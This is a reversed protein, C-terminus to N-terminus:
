RGLELSNTARRKDAGVFVLDPELKPEDEISLNLLLRAGTFTFDLGEPGGTTALEFELRNVDEGITLKVGERAFQNINLIAGNGALQGRFTYRGGKTITRISVRDGETWIFFGEDQGPIIDPEGDADDWDINTAPGPSQGTATPEAPLPESVPTDTPTPWPTPTDTPPKPTYTAQIVRTNTPTPEAV